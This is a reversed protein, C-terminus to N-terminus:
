GKFAQSAVTLGWRWSSVHFSVRLWCQSLTEPTMIKLPLNPAGMTLRIWMVIRSPKWQDYCFPMKKGGYCTQTTRKLILDVSSESCHQRLMSSSSVAFWLKHGCIEFVCIIISITHNKPQLTNRLPYWQRQVITFWRTRNGLLGIAQKGM